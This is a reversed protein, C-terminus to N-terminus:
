PRRQHHPCSSSIDRMDETTTTASIQGGKIIIARQISNIMQDAHNFELEVEQVYKNLVSWLYKILKVM